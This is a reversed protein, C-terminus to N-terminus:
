SASRSSAFVFTIIAEKAGAPDMQVLSDRMLTMEILITRLRLSENKTQV